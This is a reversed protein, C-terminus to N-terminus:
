KATSDRLISRRTAETVWTGSKPVPNSTTRATLVMPNQGSTGDRHNFTAKQRALLYCSSVNRSIRSRSTCPPAECHRHLGARLSRGGRGGLLQPPLDLSVQAGGTEHVHHGVREVQLRRRDADDTHPSLSAEYRSTGGGLPWWRVFHGTKRHQAVDGRIRSGTSPAASLRPSPKKRDRHHKSILTSSRTSRPHAM